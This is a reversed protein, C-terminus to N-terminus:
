VTLVLSVRAPNDGRLKKKLFIFLNDEREAGWEEESESGLIWPTQLIFLKPSLRALFLRLVLVLLLLYPEMTGM